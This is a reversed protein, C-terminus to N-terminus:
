ISIAKLKQLRLDHTNLKIGLVLRLIVDNQMSYIYTHRIDYSNFTIYTIKM